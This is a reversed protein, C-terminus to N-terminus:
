VAVGNEDTVPAGACTPAETPLIASLFVGKIDSDYGEGVLFKAIRGGKEGEPPTRVGLCKGTLVAVNEGRGFRFSYVEGTVPVFDEKEEKVSAEPSNRLLEVKALLDAIMQEKTRRAKKALTATAAAAAELNAAAQVAPAAQIQELANM